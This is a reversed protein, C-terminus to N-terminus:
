GGLYTRLLSEDRLLTRADGALKVEGTQLVYARDAIALAASALQEVLLVTKGQAKLLIITDLVQKVYFPALGISPEDMALFDPNSMLARAIALIQQEGGSLTGAIQRRREALRPFREYLEELHSLVARRHRFYHPYGGLLLNDEVTQDAFIQRGQPVHAIGLRMLRHAPLGTISRGRYEVRGDAVPTLGTIARLLTTKGAGNRGIVAVIEGEKM